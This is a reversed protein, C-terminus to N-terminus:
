ADSVGADAYSQRLRVLRAASDNLGGARSRALWLERFDAVLRGSDHQLARSAASPVPAGDLAWLGRRCAHRLMDAVWAYEREVLAADDGAAAAQTWRAMVGDIAELARILTAGTLGKFEPIARPDARLLRFFLSSNAHNLGCAEHINGLDFAIRGLTGTPDGFADRSLASVFGEDPRAASSWAVAAGYGFGPYSVPLPQWHGSDGWDTILLGVAGHKLGNSAANHLNGFANDTRGALSNWSSTGPCVYFPIGAAAFAAGHADFPHGAEYGWELAIANRPLESILEPHQVIIDGWFQMTRGRAEVERHIKLLFDLYVRGRGLRECDGASRGQGLDFTEDAGVNFMHSSFHPLLEDYLSRLLELSAPDGPCLSFGGQQVEGWPTTWSGVLEGLSRYRPLKLWREMHAFSNQNPVLEIFRERCYADLALIEEGTMPSAEAWAEPHNRYAFTHETYLQLQNIKWSALLEILAHLTDMTPVRDRSVDLMVGRAAFDPWDDIQLAPLPGDTSELIQCLTCVAYFIGAPTAGVVSIGGPSVTIRYGQPHGVGGPVVSLTIGVDDHPVATSAVIKWAVSRHRDLAAQLRRASFLLAQPADGDLVILRRDVITCTGGTPRLVRPAPLLLPANSM